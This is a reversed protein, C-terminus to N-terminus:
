GAPVVDVSLVTMGPVRSAATVIAAKAVAWLEGRMVETEEALRRVAKGRELKSLPRSGWVTVTVVGWPTEQAVAILIPPADSM